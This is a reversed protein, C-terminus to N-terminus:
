LLLRWAGLALIGVGVAVVVGGIGRTVRAYSAKKPNPEMGPSYLQITGVVLLFVGAVLYNWLAYAM